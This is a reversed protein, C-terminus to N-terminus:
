MVTQAAGTTNVAQSGFALPGGTVSIGGGIGTLSITTTNGFFGNDEISITGTQEGAATPKFFVYIICTAANALGTGCDDYETFPATISINSFTLPGLASLTLVQPGGTTGVTVLGLDLSSPSANLASFATVQRIRFNSYGAILFDGLADQAIGGILNFEASTAPGGDGFLGATGNGAITTMIGAPSVWRVRQGSDDAIFLNENADVQVRDPHNLEHGTALGDGNFGCVGTGAITNIIGTAATVERVVCNDYDAIYLDGASDVAVGTPDHLEAITAPDGDGLYGATGDGAITSIIGASTVERIRENNNDAIYLNNKSDMFLGTPANLKASTAPGGDGSYGCSKPTVGAFVSIDGTSASVQWVVCNSSDAIYINGSTDRALGQANGIEASTAPGGEGTFGCTGTVAGSAVTGAFINVLGTSKVLERVICNTYESVFVNGSPDELVDIPDNLVVGTPPVGSVLTPFTANGNGAVTNIDGGVSFQRGRNNGFDAFYYFGSSTIAIGEPTHIGASTAAGGDGTFGAVGTGAITAINGGVTFQRIRENNGADGITVVTGAGNVAVGMYVQSIEASTALGGDGSFGDHGNGAVTTIIGTSFTVERIRYNDEDAIFLNGTADIAVGAPYYLDAATALINDGNYGATGTGAYTNITDTSLVLKRVRHNYQDCFYLNGAGDLVLGYPRNLHYSTAPAGDGNYNCQGAVGAITTVTNTTTNIERIICNNFEAVYINGSSDVAVGTPLNLEANTAGGPVGDGTYGAVGTGAVVTLIGSANVKYVRNAATIYYNGLGDFTIGYPGNIDSQLAPINNPGGGIATTIVDQQAWTPLLSIM